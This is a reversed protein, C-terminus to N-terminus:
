EKKLVKRIIYLHILVIKNFIYISKLIFLYIIMTNLNHLLLLLHPLFERIWVRYAVFLILLDFSRLPLFTLQLYRRRFGEGFFVFLLQCLFCSGVFFVYIFTIGRCFQCIM